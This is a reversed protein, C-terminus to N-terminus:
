DTPGVEHQRYWFSTQVLAQNINARRRHRQGVNLSVGFVGRYGLVTIINPWHRRRHVLM